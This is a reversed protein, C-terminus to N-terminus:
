EGAAILCAREWVREDDAAISAEVEASVLFRAPDCAVSRHGFHGRHVCVAGGDIEGESTMSSADVSARRVTVDANPYVELLASAFADCAEDTVGGLADIASPALDYTISTIAKRIQDATLAPKVSRVTVRGVSEGDVECDYVAVTTSDSGADRWTLTVTRAGDDGHQWEAAEQAAAEASAATLTQDPGCGEVLYVCEAEPTPTAEHLARLTEHRIERRYARDLAFNYVAAWREPVGASAAPSESFGGFGVDLRNMADYYDEPSVTEGDLDRALNNFAENIHDWAWDFAIRRAIRVCQRRASIRHTNWPTM